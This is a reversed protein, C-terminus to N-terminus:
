SMMAMVAVMNAQSRTEELVSRYGDPGPPWPRFRRATLLSLAAGLFCVGFCVAYILQFQLREKNAHNTDLKTVAHSTM